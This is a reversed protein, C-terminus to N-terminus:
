SYYVGVGAGKTFLLGLYGATGTLGLGLTSSRLEYFMRRRAWHLGYYEDVPQSRSSSLSKDRTYRKRINSLQPWSKRSVPELIFFESHDHFSENYKKEWETTGHWPINSAKESVTSAPCKHLCVKKELLWAPIRARHRHRLLPDLGQTGSPYRQIPGQTCVTKTRPCDM